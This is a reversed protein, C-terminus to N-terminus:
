EFEYYDKKEFVHFSIQVFPYGQDLFLRSLAQALADQVEQPRSYWWIQLIPYQETPGDKVFFRSPCLELTVWDEPCEVSQAVTEIIQSALQQLKDEHIGKVILQPM